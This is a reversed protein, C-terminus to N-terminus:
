ALRLGVDRRAGTWPHWHSNGTRETAMRCLRGGGRATFAVCRACCRVRRGRLTWRLTESPPRVDGDRGPWVCTKRRTDTKRGLTEILRLMPKWVIKMEDNKWAHPLDVSDYPAVSATTSPPPWGVCDAIIPTACISGAATNPGSPPTTASERARRVASAADYPIM